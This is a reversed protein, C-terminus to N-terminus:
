FARNFFLDSMQVRAGRVVCRAGRVVELGFGTNAAFGFELATSEELTDFGAGANSVNAPVPRTSRAYLPNPFFFAVLGVWSHVSPLPMAQTNTASADCQVPGYSCLVASVSCGMMRPSSGVSQCSVLPLQCM